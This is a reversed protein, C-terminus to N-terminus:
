DRDRWLRVCPKRWSGSRRACSRRIDAGPRFANRHFAKAIAEPSSFAIAEHVVAGEHDLVCIHTKELSIDLGAFYDM